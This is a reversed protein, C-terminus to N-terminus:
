LRQSIESAADTALRVLMHKRSEDWRPTPSTITIGAIVDGRHNRIPAAVANVGVEYEQNDISFGQERIETLRQCLEDHDVITYPTLSVLDYGKLLQEREHEPMFALLLKPSAGVHLPIPVGIPAAGQLSFGGQHRDICVAFDGRLVLLHAVDGTERALDRLYPEAIRRIDIQQRVAEGMELVKLGLRYGQTAPDFDVYRRAELTKLIRFARSRTVNLQRGIESAGQPRGDSKLLTEMVDIALDLIEIKYDSDSAM